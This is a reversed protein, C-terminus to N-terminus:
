RLLRVEMGDLLVSIGATAVKDGATLGADVVFSKEQLAGITVPQKNVLYNGNPGPSLLFVFKGEPGQTVAEIPVLLLSDSKAGGGGGYTFKVNAAM